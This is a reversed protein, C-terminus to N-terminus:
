EARWLRFSSLARSRKPDLAETCLATARGGMDPERFLTFGIGRRELRECASLLAVEDTISCLVLYNHTPHTQPSITGAEFAAHAAQVM